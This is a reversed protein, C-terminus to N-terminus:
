FYKVRQYNSSALTKLDELLVGPKESFTSSKGFKEIHNQM